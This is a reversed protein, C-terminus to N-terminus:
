LRGPDGRLVEEPLVSGTADPEYETSHARREEAGNNHDLRWILLTEPDIGVRLPQGAWGTGALWTWRGPPESPPPAVLRVASLQRLSWSEQSAAPLLLAPITHAAGLSVGTVSALADLVGELDTISGSICETRGARTFEFRLGTGRAFLTRFELVAATDDHRLVRGQDRYNALRAYRDSVAHLLAEAENEVQM